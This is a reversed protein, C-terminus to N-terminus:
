PVSYSLGIENGDRLRAEAMEIYKPNLEIGLYLRGLKRAVLAVTGSGMFPDLVLDGQRSGSRICREVLARPFTAFHAGKFPEPSITWVSRVNRTLVPLTIAGIHDENASVGSSRTVGNAKPHVGAKRAMAKIIEAPRRDRNKRDPFGQEYQEQKFGGTRKALTAQSIRLHTNPSVPEAIAQADYYYRRSKAMLFVYEHSRTPRDTVSEPLPNPKSWINDMRLYWGDAQLAFAVRWPMGMLDKPKMGAVIIHPIDMRPARDRRFSSGRGIRQGGKSKAYLRRVDVKRSEAQCRRTGQLTSGVDSGRGGDAYCNGMNLSLTGDNRLVRRVERFIEVMKAVYQEPTRELGLQGKVGYDRLGWYPPSTVVTQTCEDPLERLRDLADGLLITNFPVSEMRM